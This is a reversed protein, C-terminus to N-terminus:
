SLWRVLPELLRKRVAKSLWKAHGMRDALPPSVKYYFRVFLWGLASTMLHEDRFRRLVRVDPHDYSGYCATAIYCGGKSQTAKKLPLLQSLLKQAEPYNPKLQLAKELPEICVVILGLRAGSVALRYKSAAWKDYLMVVKKVQEEDSLASFAEVWSIGIRSASLGTKALEQSFENPMNEKSALAFYYLAEASKKNQECAQRFFVRARDYKGQAMYEQGETMSKEYATAM